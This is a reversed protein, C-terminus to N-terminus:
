NRTYKGCDNYPLFPPPSALASEGSGLMSDLGQGFSYAKNGYPQDQSTNRGATFDAASSMGGRMTKRTRKGGRRALHVISGGRHRISARRKGGCKSTKRKKGGCKSTKRRKGGCKNKKSCGYQRYKRSHRRSIRRRKSGGVLSPFSKPFDTRYNRNSTNYAEIVSYPAGPGAIPVRENTFSYGNGGVLPLNTLPANTLPPEVYISKSADVGSNTGACGVGKIYGYPDPLMDPRQNFNIAAGDSNYGSLSGSM